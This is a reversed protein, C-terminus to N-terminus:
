MWASLIKFVGPLYDPLLIEQDVTFEVAMPPMIQYHVLNESM